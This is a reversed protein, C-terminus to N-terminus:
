VTLQQKCVFIRLHLAPFQRHLRILFGASHLLELFERERAGQVLRELKLQVIFINGRIEVVQFFHREFIALQEFHESSVVNEVWGHEHVAVILLLYVIRLSKWCVKLGRKGNVHHEKVLRQQECQIGIFWKDQVVEFIVHKAGLCRVWHVLAREM